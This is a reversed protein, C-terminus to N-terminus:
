LPFMLSGDKSHKVPMAVFLYCDFLILEVYRRQEFFMGILTHVEAATAFISYHEIIGVQLNKSIRLQLRMIVSNKDPMVDSADNHFPAFLVRLRNHQEEKQYDIVYFRNLHDSM